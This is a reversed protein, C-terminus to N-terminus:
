GFLFKKRKNKFEKSEYYTISNQISLDGLSPCLYNSSTIMDGNLKKKFSNLKETYIVPIGNLILENIVSTNGAYVVNVKNIFELVGEEKSQVRVKDYKLVINNTVRPHLRVIIDNYINNSRLYSIFKLIDKKKLFANTVIGIISEDNFHILNIEKINNELLIPNECLEFCEDVQSDTWCYINKYRLFLGARKLEGSMRMLSIDNGNNKASLLIALRDPSLDDVCVVSGSYNNFFKSSLIYTTLFRNIAHKEPISLKSLERIEVYKMYFKLLSFIDYFTFKLLVNKCERPNFYKPFLNSKIKSSSHDLVILENYVESLQVKRYVLLCIIFHGVVGLKSLLSYSFKVKSGGIRNIRERYGVKEIMSRERQIVHSISASIKRHLEKKNM